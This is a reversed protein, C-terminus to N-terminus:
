KKGEYAFSVARTYAFWEKLKTQLLAQTQLVPDNIKTRKTFDPSSSRDPEGKALEGNEFWAAARLTPAAQRPLDAFLSRLPVGAPLPEDRVLLLLSQMGTPGEGLRVYEDAAEPLSLRALPKEEQPRLRWDGDHPPPILAAQGETDIWVVYLYGPQNLTADIHILDGAKLPLAGDQHLGLGQRRPNGKEWVRVDIWGKFPPGPEPQPPRSRPWLLLGLGVLLVAAGSLLVLRRRLSPTHAAHRPTEAQTPGASQELAHLGAVVEAASAVRAAPAKELLRMILASLAPPLGPVLMAPPPPSYNTVNHLIALSTPGTFPRQGSAMEYLVCGLSFLDARIDVAKGDAQEPALYAPTGAMGGPHTLDSPGDAARALGFDLLVVQSRSSSSEPEGPPAKLWVNGPKIDRHILGAAHAPALGEAIERGIRLVEPVPLRPERKLRDALSEGRLLPMVLFPVGAVEDVRFIPVIREHELTAAIQGERLFRRRADPLTAYHPKMVKLAVLRRPRAEEARFVIGMGGQGLLGLIRYDGLRGIEDAAAPPALFPYGAPRVGKEEDRGPHADQTSPPQHTWTLVKGTLFTELALMKRLRDEFAPLLDPTAACVEAPSCPQGRDRLEQWHELLADLQAEASM